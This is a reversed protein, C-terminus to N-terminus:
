RVRDHQLQCRCGRDSSICNTVSAAEQNMIMLGRTLLQLSTTRFDGTSVCQEDHGAPPPPSPVAPLTPHAAGTVLPQRYRTCRSHGSGSTGGQENPSSHATNVLPLMHIPFSTRSNESPKCEPPLCSIHVSLPRNDGARGRRTSAKTASDLSLHKSM